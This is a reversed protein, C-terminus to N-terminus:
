DTMVRVLAMVNRGPATFGAGHPTYARDFLNEVAAAATVHRGLQAGVRLAVTSWGPVERCADAGQPCLRVDDRDSRALRSQALGGTLVADVWARAGRWGVSVRGMWPAVKELPETVAAGTEDVQTAEAWTGWAAAALTFGRRTRLALEMEAGAMRGDRANARTYVRRGDVMTQGEFSGPVRTVLGDLTAGYVWASASVPGRMWRAGLEATWSREPGLAANPVDFSRAGSGLAQYDDLNPARFGGLLNVMVALPRAPSWRLGASAVPALFTRALAPSTGDAPARADVLAVRGGLEVRWAAGLQQQWLAYAGSTLYRSGDVYRGRGVTPDRGADVTTTRSSVSDWALEFGTVVRATRWRLDAQLSAHLTQVADSETDTRTGRLRDRVETRHMGGLRAALVGRDGLRTQAHAYGLDRRQLRYVRLDGPVSLDPRPANVIAATTAAAGLTTGARPTMSVRGSLAHDEHGTSSIDGLAGGGLVTGTTGMAGSVMAAYRGSEGEVLGSALASREAAAVRVTAEGHVHTAGDPRALPQLPTVTVVGGLADSGYLVSAPGRVVEVRQVSAPDVLSLLANGGVRTLSDNLRLGDFLLLTRQGGLGRVIPAASASTTRQVYVGPLEDLREGVDRALARLAEPRTDASVARAVERLRETRRTPASVVAEGTVAEFESVAPARPPSQAAASLPVLAIGVATLSPTPRAPM